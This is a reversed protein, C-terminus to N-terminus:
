FCVVVIYLTPMQKGDNTLNKPLIDNVDSIIDEKPSDRTTASLEKM